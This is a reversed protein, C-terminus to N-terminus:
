NTTTPTQPPPYSYCGNLWSPSYLVLFTVQYFHKNIKHGYFALLPAVVFEAMLYIRRDIEEKRNRDIKTWKGGNRALKKFSYFEDVYVCLFQRNEEGSEKILLGIQQNIIDFMEEGYDYGSREIYEQHEKLLM